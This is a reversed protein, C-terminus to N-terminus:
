RPALHQLSAPLLQEMPATWWIDSGHQSFLTAVHAISEETM